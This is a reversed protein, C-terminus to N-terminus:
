EYLKGENMKKELFESGEGKLKAKEWYELAKTTNGLKYMVDGYHELITANEDGKNDLAKKLWTAADEYKGQKYLVWGYTDLYSSSTPNAKVAKESMAVAKDLKQNILSLYYSYNNLVYANEPDIELVKEYYSFTEENNKKAHYSDAIYIYFNKKVEKDNGIMKLGTNFSTIAEDYNKLFFNAMGNYYYVAMQEPFLEIARKSENQLANYDILETEILFLNEWIVYKSSDLSIVNRYQERAEELKNDRYLFDAYISYAKADDSHVQILKDILLYADKKLSDSKESLVYYQMLIKIKTDIETYPNEFAIKLENFSNKNDGKSRYYDALALHVNANNPELSLIKQYLEFAKDTKNMKLYLYALYNYYTTENPYANILKLLEEEAKDYKKIELYLKEKQLSLEETIGMIAELKDYVEIADSYKGFYLYGEALNYYYELNEPNENVLKEYVAIADKLKYNVVLINAYLMQYWSNEPDIKIAKEIYDLAEKDKKQLYYLGAIEYFAASNEPDTKICSLFLSIAKEKNGTIKERCADIFVASNELKQSQTLITTTKEQKATRCSVTLFSICVLLGIIKKLDM